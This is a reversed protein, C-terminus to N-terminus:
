PTIPRPSSHGEPARLFAQLPEKIRQPLLLEPARDERLLNRVCDPLSIGSSLDWYSSVPPSVGLALPSVILAKLQFRALTEAVAVGEARLGTPYTRWLDVIILNTAQLLRPSLLSSFRDYTTQQIQWPTPTLNSLIGAIAQSFLPTDGVILIRQGEDNSDNHSNM